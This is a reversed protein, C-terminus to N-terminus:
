NKISVIKVGSESKMIKTVTTNERKARDKYYEDVFTSDYFNQPSDALSGQQPVAKLDKLFRAILRFSQKASDPFGIYKVKSLNKGYQRKLVDKPVAKYTIKSGIMKVANDPNDIIWANSEQYAAIIPKIIEPHNRYINGSVLLVASYTKACRSEKLKAAVKREQLLSITPESLVAADIEHTMLAVSADGGPVNLMKVDDVKMGAQDLSMFLWHQSVTGISCSVKKGKLDRMTKIKTSDAVMIYTDQPNKPFNAVAKVDVNRVWGMFAPQDGLEAIDIKGAIFLDVLAPGQAVVYEVKINVGNKKLLDAERLHLVLANTVGRQGIRLVTLPESKKEKQTCASIAIMLMLVLAVKNIERMTTKQRKHIL